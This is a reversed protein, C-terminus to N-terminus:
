LKRLVDLPRTRAAKSAPLYSALASLLITAAAAAAIEAGRIRIPITALYYASNWLTFSAPAAGEALFPARLLAVAELARNVLWELGAIV